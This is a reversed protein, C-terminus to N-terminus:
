LLKYGIGYVTKVFSYQNGHNIKKRLNKIHFDITREYSETYKRHSATLLEERSFVQSPNAVLCRLLSFEMQTLPVVEGDVTVKHETINMTIADHTLCNSETRSSTRRLIAHIRAILESPNFPKCVYDDAGESFGILRDVEDVKATLMIIPTDMKSRIRKCVEIGDIDPLMLDLVILDPSVDQVLQLGKSGSDAHFSTFGELNLYKRILEAIKVEDEIILITKSM